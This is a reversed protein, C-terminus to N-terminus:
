FETIRDVYKTAKTIRLVSEVDYMRAETHLALDQNDSDEAEVTLGYTKMADMVRGFIGLPTKAKFEVRRAYPRGNRRKADELAEAPTDGLGIAIPSHGLYVIAHTGDNRQRLGVPQKDSGFLSQADAIVAWNDDHSM